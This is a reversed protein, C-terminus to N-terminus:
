GYGRLSSSFQCSLLSSLKKHLVGLQGHVHKLSLMLTVVAYRAFHTSDQVFSNSDTFYEIDQHGIPQDTLDLQSSFVEDM